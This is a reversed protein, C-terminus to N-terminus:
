IFWSRQTKTRAKLKRLDFLSRYVRYNLDIGCDPGVLGALLKTIYSIYINFLVPALVCGQRVGRTVGFPDSELNGIKVRAEMGDYLLRVMKIFKDPCGSVRLVEWLM